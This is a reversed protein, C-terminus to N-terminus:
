AKGSRRTSYRTPKSPLKDRKKRSGSVEKAKQSTSEKKRTHTFDDHMRVRKNVSSTYKDKRREEEKSAAPTSDKKSEVDEVVVQEKHEVEDNQQVSEVESGYGLSSRVKKGISGFFSTEESKPPPTM